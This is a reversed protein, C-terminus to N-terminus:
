YIATSGTYWTELFKTVDKPKHAHTLGNRAFYTSRVNQIEMLDCVSLVGGDSVHVFCYTESICLDIVNFYPLKNGAYHLSFVLSYM